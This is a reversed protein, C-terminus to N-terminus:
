TVSAPKMKQLKSLIDPGYKNLTEQKVNRPNPPKSYGLENFFWDAEPGRSGFYLSRTQLPTTTDDVLGLLGYRFLIDYPWIGGGMFCQSGQKNCHFKIKCGLIAPPPNNALYQSYPCDMDDLTKVSKFKKTAPDIELHHQTYQKEGGTHVWKGNKRMATVDGFQYVRKGDVSICQTAGASKFPMLTFADKLHINDIVVFAMTLRRPKNATFYASKQPLCFIVDGPRLQVRLRSKCSCVSAINGAINPNMWPFLAQEYSIGKNWFHTGGVYAFLVFRRKDANLQTGLSQAKQKLHKYIPENGTPRNGTMDKLTQLSFSTMHVRKKCVASVPQISNKSNILMNYAEKYNTRIAPVLKRFLERREPHKLNEIISAGACPWDPFRGSSAHTRIIDFIFDNNRFFNLEAWKALTENVAAFHQNSYGSHRPLLQPFLDSLGETVAAHTHEHVLTASVLRAFLQQPSMDEYLSNVLDEKSCEMARKRIPSLCILVKGSEPNTLWVPLDNKQVLDFIRERHNGAPIYVGFTHLNKIIKRRPHKKLRMREWQAFLIPLLIEMARCVSPIDEKWAGREDICDMLICFDNKPLIKELLYQMMETLYKRESDFHIKEKPNSHDHIKKMIAIMARYNALCNDVFSIPSYIEPIHWLRTHNSPHQRTPDLWLKTSEAFFVLCHRTDDQLESLARFNDKAWPVPPERWRAKRHFWIGVEFVFQVMREWVDEPLLPGKDPDDTTYAPGTAEIIRSVTYEDVLYTPVPYYRLETLTEIYPVATKMAERVLSFNRELAGKVCIIPIHINLSENLKLQPHKEQYQSVDQEMTKQVQTINWVPQLITRAQRDKKQFPPPKGIQLVHLTINNKSQNLLTEVDKQTHTSGMDMGDTICLLMVEQYSDISNIVNFLCDWLKTGGKPELPESKLTSSAKDSSQFKGLLKLQGAFVYIHIDNSIDQSHLFACVEHKLAEIKSSQKVLDKMSSSTDLLITILM